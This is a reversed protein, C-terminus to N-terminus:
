RMSSTPPSNPNRSRFHIEVIETKPDLRANMSKHFLDTVKARQQVDLSDFDATSLQGEQRIFDKNRHLGLQKIVSFAITDSQVIRLQTELKTNIDLGIPMVVQGLGLDDTGDLDLLLEASAEYRKPLILSVATVLLVVAALSGLVLWRRKRLVRCLQVISIQDNCTDVTAAHIQSFTFKGLDRNGTTVLKNDTM